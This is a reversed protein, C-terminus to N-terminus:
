PSLTVMVGQSQNLYTGSPTSEMKVARVMYTKTRSPNAVSFRKGAVPVSTLRRFPGVPSSSVYIHYGAVPEMAADWRLLITGTSGELTRLNRPPSLPHLRLTPDGMLSVHMENVGINFPGLLNESQTLRTSYGITEGLGMPHFHWHPRGAWASALGPGRSALPARLLNNSTNWDGFYSGFLLVFVAQLDLATFDTTSVLSPISTYDGYGCGYAWLWSDAQLATLWNGAVINQASLLPTFNRWGDVSFAGNVFAGIRDDILARPQVTTLKHRFAHNKELYRRLLETESEPFAPLNALDVRGVQLEIKAVGNVSPILTADFKGDGPINHNEPRAAITRNVTTDTYLGDMDGYYADAPWAGQHDRHGDPNTDGSYPVPVHGFLFVAEVRAPDADYDAKIIAKIETVPATRSVDRRLVTWGDGALDQTLRTLEPALAPAITADVLLVLKGRDADPRVALGAQIFGYGTYSTTGERANKVIRDEYARGKVIDRDVYVTASGDLAPAEIWAEEGAARRSVAYGLAKLDAPWRLKIKPGTKSVTATVLVAYDQAEIAAATGAFLIAGLLALWVRAARPHLSFRTRRPMALWRVPLRPRDLLYSM